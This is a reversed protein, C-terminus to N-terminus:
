PEVDLYERVATRIIDSESRRQMFAATRIAEAEDAHFWITKKKGTKTIGVADDDEDLTEPSPPPTKAM